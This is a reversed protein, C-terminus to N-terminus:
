SVLESGRERGAPASRGAPAARGAPTRPSRHRAVHSRRTRALAGVVLAASVILLLGAVAITRRAGIAASLATFGTTGIIQAGALVVSLLAVTTARAYSPAMRQVYATVGVRLTLFLFGVPLLVVLTAARTPMAAVALVLVGLLTAEIHVGRASSAWRWTLVGGVLSGASMAGLFVGYVAVDTAWEQHILLLLLTPLSTGVLAAATAAVVVAALERRHPLGALVQRVTARGGGLAPTTGSQGGGRLVILTVTPVLYSVANLIFAGGTSLAAITPAAVLAGMILGVDIAVTHLTAGPRAGGAVGSILVQWAATGLAAVLNLVVIGAVLGGAGLLDARAAVGMGLAIVALLPQTCLLVAHPSFRDSLRGGVGSLLLAAVTPVVAVLGVLHDGNPLTLVVLSQAIGQLSTGAQSLARSVFLLALTATRGPRTTPGATM